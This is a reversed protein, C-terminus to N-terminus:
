FLVDVAAAPTEFSRTGLLPLPIPGHPVVVCDLKATRTFLLLLLRFNLFVDLIM